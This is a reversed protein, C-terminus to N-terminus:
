SYTRDHNIIDSVLSGLVGYTNNYRILYSFGTFLDRKYDKHKAAAAPCRLNIWASAASSGAVL